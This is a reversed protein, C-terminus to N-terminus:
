DDQDNTVFTNSVTIVVDFTTDHPVDEFDFDQGTATVTVDPTNIDAEDEFLLTAETPGPEAEITRMDGDVIVVVIQLEDTSNSVHVTIEYDEQPCGLHMGAIAVLVLWNRTKM